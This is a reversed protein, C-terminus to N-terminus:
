VARRQFFTGKFYSSDGDLPIFDMAAYSAIVEFRAEMQRLLLPESMLWCAYTAPYIDPPVHQIVIRHRDGNWFPTRELIVYPVDTRGIRDLLDWADPLFQLSGSLLIVDPPNWAISEEVSHHFALQKGAFEKRGCEVYHPQEVVSWRLESVSSLWKRCTFYVSGLSGGFDLVSLRGGRATAVHLLAAITSFPYQPLGFLVSDREFAAEGRMVKGIADRTKEFILPADYGLSQASAENWTPFDGYFRLGDNEAPVPAPKGSKPASKAARTRAPAPKLSRLFRALMISVPVRCVSGPPLLWCIGKGDHTLHEWEAAATLKRAKRRGPAPIERYPLPAADRAPAACRRPITM